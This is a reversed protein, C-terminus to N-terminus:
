ARRTGSPAGRCRTRTSPLCPPSTRAPHLMLHSRTGTHAMTSHDEDFICRVHTSQSCTFANLLQGKPERAQRQESASTGHKVLVTRLSDADDLIAVSPPYRHRPHLNLRGWTPTPAHLNSEIRKLGSELQLPSLPGTQCSLYVSLASPPVCGFQEILELHPTLSEAVHSLDLVDFGSGFTELSFNFKPVEEFTVM